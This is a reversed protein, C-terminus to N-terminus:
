AQIMNENGNMMMNDDGIAIVNNVIYEIDLGSIMNTM